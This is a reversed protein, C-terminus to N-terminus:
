IGRPAAKQTAQRSEGSQRHSGRRLTLLPFAPAFVAKKRSVRAGL